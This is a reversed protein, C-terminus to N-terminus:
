DGGAVRRTELIRWRGDHHGRGPRYALPPRPAADSTATTKRRCNGRPQPRSARSSVPTGTAPTFCSPTDVPPADSRGPQHRPALARSWWWRRRFRGRRPGLKRPEFPGSRREQECSARGEPRPLVATAGGLIQTEMGSPRLPQRQRDPLAGAPPLLRRISRPSDTRLDALRRSRRTWSTPGFEQNEHRSRPIPVPLGAPVSGADSRESCLPRPPRRCHYENPSSIVGRVKGGGAGDAAGPM